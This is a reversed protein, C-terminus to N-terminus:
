NSHEKERRFILVLGLGILLSLLSSGGYSVLPLTIGTVPMIGMNMGINIIAQGFIWWFVGLTVLRGFPSTVKALELLWNLLAFFCALLIAVGVFGFEEAFSAFAFDTHREPLFRLHSQTGQRVGKGLFRGNGVAITAQIVNYGAGSPDSFPNLFSNIRDMQYPRLLRPVLPLTLSVALLMFLLYKKPAKSFWIIGLWIIGLSLASGLDPQLFILGVPLAMLVLHRLFGRWNEIKEKALLGAFSLILLPKVFESTQFNFTGLNIWRTSGRTTIGLVETVILLVISIWYLPWSLQYLWASDIRSILIAAILGIILAILQASLLNPTTSWIVSLGFALIIGLSLFLPVLNLRRM